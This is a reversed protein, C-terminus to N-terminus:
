MKSKTHSPQKILSALMTYNDGSTDKTENPGACSLHASGFVLNRLFLFTVSDSQVQYKLHDERRTM